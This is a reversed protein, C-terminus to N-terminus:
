ATHAFAYSGDSLKCDTDAITGDITQNFAIPTAPTCPEGSAASLSPGAVSRSPAPAFPDGGSCAATLLAGVLAARWRASSAADRRM